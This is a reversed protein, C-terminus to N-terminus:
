NFNLYNKAYTFNLTYYLIVHSSLDETHVTTINYHVIVNSNRQPDMVMCQSHTNYFFLVFYKPVGSISGGGFFCVVQYTATSTSMKLFRSEHSYVYIHVYKFWVQIKALNYFTMNNKLGPLRDRHHKKKFIQILMVVSVACRADSTVSFCSLEGSQM